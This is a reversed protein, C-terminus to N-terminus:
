NGLSAGRRGAVQVNTDKEWVRGSATPLDDTVVPSQNLQEEISYPVDGPEELPITSTAPCCHYEHIGM